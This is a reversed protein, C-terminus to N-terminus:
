CVSFLCGSGQKGRGGQLFTGRLYFGGGGRSKLEIGIKGGGADPGRQHNRVTVVFILEKGGRM